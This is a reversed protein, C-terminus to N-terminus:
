PLALWAKLDALSIEVPNGKNTTVFTGSGPPTETKVIPTIQILSEGNLNQLYNKTAM